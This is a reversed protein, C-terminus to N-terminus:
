YHVYLNSYDGGTKHSYMVGQPAYLLTYSSAGSFYLTAGLADPPQSWDDDPRYFTQAADTFVNNNHLRLGFSTSNGAYLVKTNGETALDVGSFDWAPTAWTHVYHPASGGSGDKTLKMVMTGDPSVDTDHGSLMGGPSSRAPVHVLTTVDWPTTMEYVQLARDVIFRGDLSVKLMRTDSSVTVAYFDAKTIYSITSNAPDTLDRPNQLDYSLVYEGSNYGSQDYSFTIVRCATESTPALAMWAINKTTPSGPVQRFKYSGRYRLGTSLVYEPDFVSGAGGAQGASGLSLLPSSLAGDHGVVRRM